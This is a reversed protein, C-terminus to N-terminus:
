EDDFDVNPVVDVPEDSLADSDEGEAKEAEQEQAYKGM